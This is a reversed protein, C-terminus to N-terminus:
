RPPHFLHFVLLHSYCSAVFSSLSLGPLTPLQFNTVLKHPVFFTALVVSTSEGQEQRNDARNLQDKLFCQGKCISIENDKEICLNAAIYERNLEFSFQVLSLSFANLLLITAIAINLVRYM